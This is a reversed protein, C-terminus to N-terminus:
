NILISGLGVLDGKSFNTFSLKNRAVDRYSKSAKSWKKVLAITKNVSDAFLALDFGAATALSRVLISERMDDKSSVSQAASTPSRPRVDTRFVSEKGSITSSASIASLLRVCTEYYKSALNVADRAVESQHTRDQATTAAVDKAMALEDSLVTERRQVDRLQAKTFSLEAKLGDAQRISANRSAGLKEEMETRVASIQQDLLHKQKEVAAADEQSADAELGRTINASHAKASADREARAEALHASMGQLEAKLGAVQSELLHSNARSESLEKISRSREEQMSRVQVILSQEANKLGDVDILAEQLRVGLDTARDKEQTIEAHLATVLDSQDEHDRQHTEQERVRVELEASLAQRALSVDSLDSRLQM